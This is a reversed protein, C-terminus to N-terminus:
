FNVDELYPWAVRLKIGHAIKVKIDRELASWGDADITFRAFPRGNVGRSGPTANRQRAYTLAGPNHHTRPLSMMKYYGEMRAIRAMVERIEFENVLIVTALAVVGRAWSRM